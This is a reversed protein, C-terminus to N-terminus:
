GERNLLVWIKRYGSSVRTQAMERIRQCLENRPNRYSRYRYNARACRVTQCARREIISYATGLYQAVVRQQSPRVM